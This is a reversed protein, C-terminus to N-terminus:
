AFRDAGSGSPDGDPNSRSEEASALADGDARVVEDRRAEDYAVLKWAAAARYAPQVGRLKDWLRPRGLFAAKPMSDGENLYRRRDEPAVGAEDCEWWGTQPCSRGTVLETGLPTRPPRADSTTAVGGTPRLRFSGVIRDWLQLAQANTLRTPQPNGNADQRGSSFEISIFPTDLTGGGQTEWIFSHARSGGSSPTSVLYEQGKYPGIQREGKRLVQVGSALNGLGQLVGGVRDLLPADHKHSALPFIDISLVVDPHDPLDIDVGVEENTWDDDAIFGGAFCYGTETPIESDARPRLRSIYNIMSSVALAQKNEGAEDAIKYQIGEIWKYGDVNILGATGFDEWYAFVVSNDQPRSVQRLLTADKEHRESRLHVEKEYIKKNFEPLTLPVPNEIRAFDYKYNGGSLAGGDPINILFRGICVSITNPHDVHRMKSNVRYSSTANCAGVLVSAVIVVAFCKIINM